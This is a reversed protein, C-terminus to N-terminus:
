SERFFDLISTQKTTNVNAVRLLKRLKTSVSEGDKIKNQSLYLEIVELSKTAGSYLVIEEPEGQDDELEDEDLTM